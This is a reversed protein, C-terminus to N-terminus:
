KKMRKRKKTEMLFLGVVGVLFGGVQIYTLGKFDAMLTSAGITIAFGVVLLIIGLKIM